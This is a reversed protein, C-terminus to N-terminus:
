LLGRDALKPRVGEAFWYAEELHPYGSLVFESFGHAHYDAILATVEDFSGVLATGAGGRVLGAGAWLGPYIELDERRTGGNTLAQQRRQGESGSNRFADRRRAILDPDMGSVLEDAVAWAEDSTPRTIVHHRIGYRLERGSEAARARVRSIKEAAQAPPEGWTLYVDAHEAAVDIAADSSGGLYIEPVATIAPMHADVVHFHAGEFTLPEGTWLHKLIHLYEAARAYREEKGAHDGFRRQDADEGGIVVNIRLRNGSVKQFAAAMQAQLTPSVLGPRIAILYDLDRTHQTLATTTTWSEENWTGTPVLVAEFGLYESARVIQSLYPIDAPRQVTLHQTPDHVTGSGMSLDTRSDGTLPLFWDLILPRQGESTAADSM